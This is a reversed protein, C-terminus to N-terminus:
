QTATFWRNDRKNPIGASSLGWSIVSLKEAVKEWCDLGHIKFTIEVKRSQVTTTVV